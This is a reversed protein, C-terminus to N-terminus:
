GPSADEGKLSEPAYDRVQRRQRGVDSRFESGGLYTSVVPYRELVFIM